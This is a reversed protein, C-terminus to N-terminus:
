FPLIHFKSSGATRLVCFMVIGITHSFFEQDLIKEGDIFDFVDIGM